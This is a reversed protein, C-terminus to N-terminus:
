SICHLVQLSCFKEYLWTFRSYDDIFTVFYKYHVHSIIPTIGWVDSHIVDFCKTAHSGNNTFPLIKSKGFKCTNCNSNVYLSDYNKNGLLSSKLLTSLVHSNPHGLHNYWVQNEHRVITCALSVLLFCLCCTSPSIHLPFIQGM